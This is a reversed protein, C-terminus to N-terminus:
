DPGGVFRLDEEEQGDAGSVPFQNKCLELILQCTHASIEKCFKLIPKHECRGM